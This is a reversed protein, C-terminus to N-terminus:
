IEYDKWGATSAKHLTDTPIGKFSTEAGESAIEAIQAAKRKDGFFLGRVFGDVIKVAERLGCSAAIEFDGAYLYYFKGKKEYHVGAGWTENIARIRFDLDKKNIRSM